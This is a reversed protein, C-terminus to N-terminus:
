PSSPPPTSSTTTSPSATTTTTSTVVTTSTTSPQTTSSTSPPRSAPRTTPSGDSVSAGVSKHTGPIQTSGKTELVPKPAGLVAQTSINWEANILAYIDASILDAGAVSFHVGDGARMIQTRGFQDAFRSQYDGNEDDFIAHADVYTVGAVAAASERQMRNVELVGAELDRGQAVPASVWYVDRHKTGVLERMMAQTRIRYEDSLKDSWVNADNTGIIFVVVEPDLRALQQEAHKPWDYFDPTLLGSSIRSDYQPQVVGTNATLEGLSPGISGALSDGAIWLRLPDAPTLARRPAVGWPRTTTTSATSRRAAANLNTDDSGPVTIVNTLVLAVAVAALVVFLGGVLAAMRGFRGRRDALDARRQSRPVRETDAM